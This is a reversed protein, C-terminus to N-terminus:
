QNYLWVQQINHYSSEHYDMKHHKLPHPKKNRSPTPILINQIQKTNTKNFFTPSTKNQETHLTPIFIIKHIHNM